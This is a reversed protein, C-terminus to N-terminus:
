CQIKSALIRIHNLYRREEEKEKKETRKLGNKTQKKNENEINIMENEVKFMMQHKSQQKNALTTNKLRNNLNIMKPNETALIRLISSLIV